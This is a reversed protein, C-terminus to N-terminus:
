REGLCRRPGAVGLVVQGPQNALPPQGVGSPRVRWSDARCVERSPRPLVTHNDAPPRAGIIGKGVSSVVGGTVFIYKARSM